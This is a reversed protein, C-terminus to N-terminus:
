KVQVCIVVGDYCFLQQEHDDLEFLDSAGGGWCAAVAPLDETLRVNVRHM